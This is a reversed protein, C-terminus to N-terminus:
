EAFSRQRQVAFSTYVPAAPPSSEAKTNSVSSSPFEEDDSDEDNFLDELKVDQRQAKQARPLSENSDDEKFEPADPLIIDGETPEPASMPDDLTSHPM